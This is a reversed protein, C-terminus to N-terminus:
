WNIQRHPFLEWKDIFYKASLMRNKLAEELDPVTIIKDGPDTGEIWTVYYDKEMKEDVLTVLKHGADDDDLFFTVEPFLNLLDIQTSSIAAGFISTVNQNIHSYILNLDITGEVVILPKTFDLNDINLLTNTMSGKPYLAKLDGKIVARGEYSVIKKDVVVPIIIRDVFMTDNIDVYSAFSVNFDKLFKKTLHREEIYARSDKSYEPPQLTGKVVMKNTKFSDRVPEKKKLSYNFALDGLTGKINLLEYVNRTTLREVLSEISGTEGCSFCKFGEKKVSFSPKKDSHFPCLGHYYTSKKKLSIPLYKIIVDLDVIDTITM